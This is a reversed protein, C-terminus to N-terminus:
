SNLRSGRLAGVDELLRMTHVGVLPRAVEWTDDGLVPDHEDVAHGLGDLLMAAGQLAATCGPEVRVDTFPSSVMGIRLPEPERTVEELLPREFVPAMYPDGPANGRIVDLMAASDRVTRSVAGATSMGSWGEGLDPGSSVTARTPKLGFLGCNSAPIRISGGGDSAHALPLVRAAVAAAAGGSSGGASHGHNWPNVTAGNRQTETTSVLGFEPAASRGFIVFGAAKFRQVLESDYLYTPPPYLRTGDTSSLGEMPAFLDKLLFPVGGFPGTPNTAATSRAREVYWMTVANLVENSEEALGIAVELVDAASVEGAAISAAIGVADQQLYWDRM